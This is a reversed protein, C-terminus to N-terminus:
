GEGKQCVAGQGRLLIFMESAGRAALGFAKVGCAGYYESLFCDSRFSVIPWSPMTIVAWCQGLCPSSGFLSFPCKACSVTGRFSISCRVAPRWESQQLVDLGSSGEPYHLISRRSGSVHHFQVALPARETQETRLTGFDHERTKERQADPLGTECWRPTVAPQSIDAQLRCEIHWDKDLSLYIVGWEYKLLHGLIWKQIFWNM